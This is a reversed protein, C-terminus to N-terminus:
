RLEESDPQAGESGGTSGDGAGGTSGGDDSGGEGGSGDGPPIEIEEPACIGFLCIYGGPCEQGMSCDVACSGFGFGSVEAPICIEGSPCVEAQNDVTCEVGCVGITADSGGGFPSGGGSIDIGLDICDRGPSCYDQGVECSSVCIGNFCTVYGDEFPCDEAATLQSCPRECRGQWCTEGTGCDADADCAYRYNPPPLQESYCSIGFVSGLALAAALTRTVTM